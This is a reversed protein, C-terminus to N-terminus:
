SCKPPLQAMSPPAQLTKDDHRFFLQARFGARIGVINDGKKTKPVQGREREETEAERTGSKRM